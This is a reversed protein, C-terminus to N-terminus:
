RRKALEVLTMGEFIEITKDLNSKASTVNRPVYPAEVPPQTKSDKRVYKEKKPTKLGYAM